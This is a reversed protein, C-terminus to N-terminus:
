LNKLQYLPQFRFSAGAYHQNSMVEPDDGPHSIVDNHHVRSFNELLRGSAFKKLAGAIGVGAPQQTGDGVWGSFLALEILNRSLRRIERTQRGATRERRATLASFLNTRTLKRRKNLQSAIMMRETM